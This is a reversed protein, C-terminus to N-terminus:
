THAFCAIVCPCVITAADPSAPAASQSDALLVEAVCPNPTSTGAEIGSTVPAPPFSNEPSVGAQVVAQGGPFSGGYQLAAPAVLSVTDDAKSYMGSIAHFSVVAEIEPPPPRDAEPPPALM